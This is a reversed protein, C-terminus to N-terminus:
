PKKPVLKEMSVFLARTRVMADKDVCLRRVTEALQLRYGADNVCIEGISHTALRRVDPDQNSSHKAIFRVARNRWKEPVVCLVVAKSLVKIVGCVVAISDRRYIRVAEALRLPERTVIAMLADEVACAISHDCSLSLELLVKICEHSPSNVVYRLARLAETRLAIPCAAAKGAALLVPVAAPPDLGSKLILATHLPSVQEEYPNWSKRRDRVLGAVFRILPIPDTTLATNVIAEVKSEILPDAVFRLLCLAASRVQGDLSSMLTMLQSPSELLVCAAEYREGLKGRLLRNMSNNAQAHIAM